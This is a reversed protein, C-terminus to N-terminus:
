GFAKTQSVVPATGGRAAEVAALTLNNGKPAEKPSPAEDFAGAYIVNGEPNIVFVTPTALAGYSKGVVGTEDNLIPNTKGIKEAYAKAAEPDHGEKGPGASKVSLWVVDDRGSLAENMQSVFEPKDYYAVVAPCEANFWDLVVTMGRHDSLKHENGNLDVLTFDPAAQGVLDEPQEVAATTEGGEDEGHEVHGPADHDHSEATTADAMDPLEQPTRAQQKPCGSLLALCGIAILLRLM